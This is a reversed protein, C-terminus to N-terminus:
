GDAEPLAPYPAPQGYTQTAPYGAPPPPPVRVAPADRRGAGDGEPASEQGPGPPTLEGAGEQAHAASAFAGVLCLCVAFCGSIPPFSGRMPATYPVNPSKARPLTGFAASPAQFAVAAPV